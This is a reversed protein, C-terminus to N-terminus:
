CFFILGELSCIGEQLLLSSADDISFSLGLDTHTKRSHESRAKKTCCDCCLLVLSMFIDTPYSEMYRERSQPKQVKTDKIDVFRPDLSM